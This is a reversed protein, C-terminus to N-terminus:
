CLSSNYMLQGRPRKAQELTFRVNVKVVVASM